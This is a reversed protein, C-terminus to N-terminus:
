VNKLLNELTYDAGQRRAAAAAAALPGLSSQIYTCRASPENPLYVSCLHLRHGSWSASVATFRGRPCLQAAPASLEGSALLARRILV